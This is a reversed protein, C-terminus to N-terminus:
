AGSKGTTQFHAGLNTMLPIFNPFSTEIMSVDDVIVPKETGLGMTLFAMAIRHDMDTKIMAGGKPNGRGYVTLVDAEAIVEVGCAKLGAETASLRDSEKVRLEAVGEMRTEGGAFAALVSLIPYEDIM